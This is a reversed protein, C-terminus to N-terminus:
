RVGSAIQANIVRVQSPLTFLDIIVGVGLLGFTFLWLLGRGIKGMYFHQIGCILFLSPIMLLYAVGVDKLPRMPMPRHIVTPPRQPEYHTM